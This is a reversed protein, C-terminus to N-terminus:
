GLVRVHPSASRVKAATRKIAQEYVSRAVSSRQADHWAFCQRLAELGPGDLGLSKGEKARQYARLLAAQAEEAAQSADPGIGFELAMIETLNVMDALARWDERTAHGTAFAEIASLELLRLRDLEPKQSVAAGAMAHTIPNVLSWVKRRCRKKM